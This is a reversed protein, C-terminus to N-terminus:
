PEILTQKRYVTYSSTDGDYYVTFEGEEYMFRKVSYTDEKDALLVQFDGDVGSLQIIEDYLGASVGGKESIDFMNSDSGYQEAALVRFAMRVSKAHGLAVQADARYMLHLAGPIVAIVALLILISIYLVGRVIRQQVSTYIHPKDNSINKTM